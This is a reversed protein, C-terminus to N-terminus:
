QHTTIAQHLEKLANVDAVTWKTNKKSTQKRVLLRNYKVRCADPSRHMLEGVEDWDYSYEQRLQILKKKDTEKWETNYNM